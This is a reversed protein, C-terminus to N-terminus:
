VGKRGAEDAQAYFSEYDQQHWYFPVPGLALELM